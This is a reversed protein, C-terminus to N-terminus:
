EDEGTFDIMARWQRARNMLWDRYDRHRAATAADGDTAAKLALHNRKRASSVAVRYCAFPDFFAPNEFDAPAAQQSM